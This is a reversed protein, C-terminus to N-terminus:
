DRIIGEVMLLLFGLFLFIQYRHEYRKRQKEELKRKEIKSIKESYLKDLGVKPTIYAGGTSLAVKKLLVDDMKSLVINGDRDKLYSRNGNEDFVPIPTGEVSGVGVTYVPIGEKKAMNIAAEVREEHDEGDTILIIARHKRTGKRFMSIAKKIAGGIDTGQRSIMDVTVTDLFLKFAGYDLTLPCQAFSTGAFIVLGIRDGNLVKLLDKIQNKAYELRHPKVDDAMMSRSVDLCVVIDIGYRKIQELKYGWQPRALSFLVLGIGFLFVGRKVWRRKYSLGVVLKGLLQQDAWSSLLKKGNKHVYIFYGLLILLLWLWNLCQLCEFRM